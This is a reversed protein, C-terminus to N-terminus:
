KSCKGVISFSRSTSYSGRGESNYVVITIEFDIGSKEVYEPMIIVSTNSTEVSVFKGTSFNASIEYYSNRAM